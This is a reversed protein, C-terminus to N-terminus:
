LHYGPKQRYRGKSLKEAPEPHDPSKVPHGKSSRCVSNLQRYFYASDEAQCELDEDYFCTDDVSQSWTGM